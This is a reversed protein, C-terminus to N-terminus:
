DYDFSFLVSFHKSTSKTSFRSADVADFLKVNLGKEGAWHAELSHWRHEVRRLSVAWVDLTFDGGSNSISVSACRDTEGRAEVAFESDTLFPLEAKAEEVEEKEQEAEEEEEEEEARKGSAAGSIRGQQHQQIHHFEKRLTILHQECLTRAYVYRRIIIM